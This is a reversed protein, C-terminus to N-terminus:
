LRVMDAMHHALEDAAKEKMAQKVAQEMDLPIPDEFITSAFGNTFGFQWKLTCHLECGTVAKFLTQLERVCQFEYDDLLKVFDLHSLGIFIKGQVSWSNVLSFHSLYKEIDAAKLVCSTRNPSVRYFDARLKTELLEEAKLRLNEISSAADAKNLPVSIVMPLYLSYSQDLVALMEENTLM